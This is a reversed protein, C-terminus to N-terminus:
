GPASRARQDRTGPGRSAPTAGVEIRLKPGVVKQIQGSSLPARDQLSCLAGPLAFVHGAVVGGVRAVM